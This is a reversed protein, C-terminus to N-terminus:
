MKPLSLFDKLDRCTQHESLYHKSHVSGDSYIQLIKPKVPYSPTYDAILIQHDRLQSKLYEIQEQLMEIDDSVGERRNREKLKSRVTEYIIGVVTVTYLTFESILVAGKDAWHSNNRKETGQMFGPGIRHKVARDALREAETSIKTGTGLDLGKQLSSELEYIRKAIKICVNKCNHNKSSISKLGLALPRSLQRVFLTTIRLIVGSM